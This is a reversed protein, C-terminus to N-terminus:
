QSRKTGRRVAGTSSFYRRVLRLRSKFAWRSWDTLWEASTEAESSLEQLASTTDRTVPDLMGFLRRSRPVKQIPGSSPIKAIIRALLLFPRVAVETVRRAVAALSFLRKAAQIPAPMRAVRLYVRLSGLLLMHSEKLAVSQGPALSINDLRTKIGAVEAARVFWQNDALHFAVHNEAIGPLRFLNPLFSGKSGLSDGESCAFVMSGLAICLQFPNETTPEPFATVERPIVAIRGIKEFTERFGSTSLSDAVEASLNVVTLLMKERELRQAAILLVRLIGSSVMTVKRFDLFLEQSGAESLHKSLLQIELSLRPVDDETLRDALILWIEDRQIEFFSEMVSLKKRQEQPRKGFLQIVFHM